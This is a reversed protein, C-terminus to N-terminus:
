RSAFALRSSGRPWVLLVVNRVWPHGPTQELAVAVAVPLSEEGALPQPLTLQELDNVHVIRGEVPGRVARAAKNLARDLAVDGALTGATVRAALLAMEGELTKWRSLRGRQERARLADLYGRVAVAARGGDFYQRDVVQYGGVLALLRGSDDLTAGVALRGTAPDFLMRRQFPSELMDRLLVGIDSRDDTGAAAFRGQRVSTGVKWGAMVGLAVRDALADDDRWVASWYHPALGALETSQSADLVLPQAGIESRLRNVTTLLAAPVTEADTVPQPRVDSASHWTDVPTGGPWATLTAITDGLVQGEPVGIIEITAAADYPEVPCAFAYREAAAPMAECSAFRFRGHTVLAELAVHRPDRLGRVYVLAGAAPLGSFGDLAGDSSEGVVMWVARGEHRAFAGGIAADPGLGGRLAVVQAAPRPAWRGLVAAPDEDAAAEGALWSVTLGRGTAGCRAAVFSRLAPPAGAGQQAYFRALERAACHMAATTATRADSAVLEAGPGAVEAPGSPADPFPGALTWSDVLPAVVPEPTVPAPQRAIKALEASTPFTRDIARAGGCGILTLTALLPM